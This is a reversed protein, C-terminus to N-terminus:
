PTRNPDVMAEAKGSEFRTWTPKANGVPIQLGGEVLGALAEETFKDLPMWIKSLYDRTGQHDHLESETLPPVLEMIHVNTSKLIHDLSLVLSHVAAKSASYGPIFSAPLSALTSTIPVIFSHLGKESRALFHPLLYTLLTYMSIYNTRIEADLLDLDIKSPENFKYVYQVGSAFIVADLEPWKTTVDEVFKKLSERGSLLDVAIGGFRDSKETIEDIRNQRRGSIIVTPKTPLDHIAYALSRGIGATAGIILVVKADKIGPM